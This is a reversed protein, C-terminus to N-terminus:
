DSQRVLSPGPNQAEVPRHGSLINNLYTRIHQAGPLEMALIILAADALAERAAVKEVASPRQDAGPQARATSVCRWSTRRHARSTVLTRPQVYRWTSRLLTPGDAVDEAHRETAPPPDDELLSQLLRATLTLPRGGSWHWPPLVLEEEIMPNIDDPM